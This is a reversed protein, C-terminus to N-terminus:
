WRFSPAWPYQTGSRIGRHRLLTAATSRAIVSTPTNHGNLERRRVEAYWRPQTPVGPATHDPSACVNQLNLGRMAKMLMTVGLIAIARKLNYAPVHLSMETGVNPLRRTLLHGRGMWDKITGFFHEVTQRRVRMAGPMRDLRAQPADIVQEHEWRRIRRLEEPTCRPKLECTSCATL